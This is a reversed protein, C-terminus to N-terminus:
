SAQGSPAPISAAITDLILGLGYEFRAEPDMHPQRAEIVVKSFVPHRGGALIQHVYPSTYAMWQDRDMGTRREEEAWSVEARVFGDVYGNFIGFLTMMEDISLGRGDLTGGGFELMRLANPGFVRRTQPLRTLWPHRLSVARLGHALLTLDARWDGSPREPLDLEGLAADVMLEILDERRPIYRYLSMTGAGIEKAVRRMSAADLGEHDAVRIAAEVIQARSYAPRPGRAPREPRLWIIDPADGM